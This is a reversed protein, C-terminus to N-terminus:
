GCDLMNVSIAIPIPVAYRWLRMAVSKKLPTGDIELSRGHDGCEDQETLDEFEPGAASGTQGDLSKKTQSGFCRSNHCFVPGLAVNGQVLHM